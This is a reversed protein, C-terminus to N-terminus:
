PEVARRGEETVESVGLQGKVGIGSLVHFGCGCSAFACTRLWRAAGCLGVGRGESDPLHLINDIISSHLFPVGM